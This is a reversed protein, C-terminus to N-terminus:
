KKLLRQDKLLTLGKKSSVQLKLMLPTAEKLSLLNSRIVEREKREMQSNDRCQKFVLSVMESNVLSLFQVGQSTQPAGSVASRALLLHLGRNYFLRLGQAHMM